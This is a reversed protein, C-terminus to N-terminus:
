KCPDHQFVEVNNKEGDAGILYVEGSRGKEIITIVASNHDDVHIWDRVNEGKGYLKLKDGSLINTIQRPIMKEVHQRPGYNNSCNSVTAHIGFSRVWALVLMDSGLRRAQILARLTTALKTPLSLLTM